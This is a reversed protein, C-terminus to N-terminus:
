CGPGLRLCGLERELDNFADSLQHQESGQAVLRYTQELYDALHTAHLSLLATGDPSQLRIYTRQQATATAPPRSSWVIVDGQGAHGRIGESLLDRALIWVTEDPENPYFVAEIAFPDNSRYTFRVPVPGGPLGEDAHWAMNLHAHLTTAGDKTEAWSNVRKGPAPAAEAPKRAPTMATQPRRLAWPAPGTRPPAEAWSVAWPPTEPRRNLFLAAAATLDRSPGRQLTRVLPDLARGGCGLLALTQPGALEQGCSDLLGPALYSALADAWARRRDAARLVERCHSRQWAAQIRIRHEHSCLWAGLTREFTIHVPETLDYSNDILEELARHWKPMRPPSSAPHVLIPTRGAACSEEEPQRELEAPLPLSLRDATMLGSTHAPRNTETRLRLERPLPGATPQQWRAGSSHRMLLGWLEECASWSWEDDAPTAQATQTWLATRMRHAAEDWRRARTLHWAVFTQTKGSGTASYVVAGRECPEHAGPPVATSKGAGGGATTNETENDPTPAQTHRTMASRLQRTVTAPIPECAALVHPAGLSSANLLADFDDHNETATDTDMTNGKHVTM